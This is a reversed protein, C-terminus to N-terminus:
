FNSKGLQKVSEIITDLRRQKTKDSKHSFKSNQCFFCISSDNFKNSYTMESNGTTKIIHRRLTGPNVGLIKAM